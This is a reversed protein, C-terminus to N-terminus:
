NPNWISLELFSEDSIDVKFDSRRTKLVGQTLTFILPQHWSMWGRGFLVFTAENPMRSPSHWHQGGDGPVLYSTFLIDAGELQLEGSGDNNRHLKLNWSALNAIPAHPRMSTPGIRFSRKLDYPYPCDDAIQRPGTMKCPDTRMYSRVFSGVLIRVCSPDSM